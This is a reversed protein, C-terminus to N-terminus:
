ESADSATLRALEMAGPWGDPPRVFVYVSGQNNSGAVDDGYAGVVITDGDLAVSYGFWDATEGDSAVLTTVELFTGVGLPEGRERAGPQVPALM